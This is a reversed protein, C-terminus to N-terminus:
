KCNILFICTKLRKKKHDNSSVITIVKLSGRYEDKVDHGMFKVIDYKQSVPNKLLLQRSKKPFYM